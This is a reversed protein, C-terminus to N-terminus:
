FPHHRPFSYISHLSPPLAPHVGPHLARRDEAAFHFRIVVLCCQLDCTHTLNDRKIWELTSGPKLREPADSYNRVVGPCRKLAALFQINGPVVSCVFNVVRLRVLVRQSLSRVIWAFYSASTPVRVRNKGFASLYM